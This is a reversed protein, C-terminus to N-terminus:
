FIVIYRRPIVLEHQREQSVRRALVGAPFGVASRVKLGNKSVDLERVAFKTLHTLGILWHGLLGEILECFQVSALSGCPRLPYEM